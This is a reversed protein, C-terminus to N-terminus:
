NLMGGEIKELTKPFKKKMVDPNIYSIGPKARPCLTRRRDKIDGIIRVFYGAGIQSVNNTLNEKRAEKIRERYTSFNMYALDQIGDTVCLYPVSIEEGTESDVDDEDFNPMNM